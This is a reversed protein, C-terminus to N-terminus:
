RHGSDEVAKRGSRILRRRKQLPQGTRVPQQDQAGQGLSLAVDGGQDGLGAHGRCGHGLMQGLQLVLPHDVNAAVVAGQGIEDDMRRRNLDHVHQVGM